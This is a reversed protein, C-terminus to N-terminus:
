SSHLFVLNLISFEGGKAIYGYCPQKKCPDVGTVKILLWERNMPSHWPFNQPICPGKYFPTGVDGFLDHIVTTVASKADESVFKTHEKGLEEGKANLFTVTVATSGSHGNYTFHHGANHRLNNTIGVLTEDIMEKTLDQPPYTGVIYFEEPILFVDSPKFGREKPQIIVIRRSRPNQVKTM